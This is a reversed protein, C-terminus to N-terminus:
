GTVGEPPHEGAVLYFDCAHVGLGLVYQEDVDHGRVVMAVLETVVFPSLGPRNRRLQGKFEQGWGVQKQGSESQRNGAQVQAPASVLEFAKLVLVTQLLHAPKSSRSPWVGETM